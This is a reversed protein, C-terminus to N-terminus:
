FLIDTFKRIMMAVPDCTVVSGVLFHGALGVARQWGPRAVLALSVVLSKAQPLSTIGGITCM